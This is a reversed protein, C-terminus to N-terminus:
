LEVKSYVHKYDDVKVTTVMAILLSPPVIGSVSRRGRVAITVPVVAVRVAVRGVTVAVLTAVPVVFTSPVPSAVAVM